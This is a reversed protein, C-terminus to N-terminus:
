FQHLKGLTKRIEELLYDQNFLGPNQTVQLHLGRLFNRTNIYAAQRSPSTYSGKWSRKRPDVLVHLWQKIFFEDLMQRQNAAIVARALRDDEGHILVPNNDATVRESIASLINELEVRALYRNGALVSLLDAIRALSHAWGKQPVFGRMDLEEALYVLSKDYISFVDERELIIRKNDTHVIEALMLISITRLFLGDSDIEGLGSQLNIVLPVIYGRIQEPQYHRKNLWSAFTEYAIEERLDPDTSGLYTFLEETLDTVSYDHPLNYGSERIDYWFQKDLTSANM